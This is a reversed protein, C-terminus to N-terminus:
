GKRYRYGSWGGAARIPWPAGKYTAWAPMTGMIAELEAVTGGRSDPVDCVIEDYTHLVVPYGACEASLMAYRQIDRAVAQVVNECLKGSYTNIRVWGMAGQQPNTNYGEYSLSWQGGFSRTNPSLTPARYTLVRGSPLHCYLAAGDSQYSVGSETGDLRRVKHLTNPALVAAIAAGELGFFEARRAGWERREQGGWFEVIAPSAARWALISEKIEAEGMFADAGFRQWAGIWGGFGSALEAVKGITQRIPHHEGDRAKRTWWGPSTVDDYGAHAMVEAFSIGTIKSASLEYAKGHTAFMDVRWQEGALCALVVGEISSFDSAILTHGPSAVFLGRLCGSVCLMADGYRQEIVPLPHQRIDALVAETAEPGWKAPAHGPAFPVGCSWCTDRSVDSYRGCASCAKLTPGAKPLNTPQPGEGTPRGTRAGHYNYLDHLRGEPTLQNIMAFVKKVSASGVAQRIQLARRAASAAEPISALLAEIADSDMAGPGDSVHVGFGGLWGKLRELQSAREVVGGTLTHLEANYQELCADVLAACAQLSEADIRVGRRNILQDLLWFDLEEGTLDPCRASAEAEAKIDRLNYQCLLDFDARAEEPRLRLSPNGKTPNRPTSLKSLLYKGAEDKPTTLGMVRGALELGGPYGSARAKGMACRTQGIELPPWGYRPMCVFTWIWWEFASNWSEVIGGKRVYDLLDHPPEADPLWLRPGAGDKLDYALSLVETSPHRAYVAAGVVSLGKATGRPGRWKQAEWDFVCGAESFTEFDMDPLVTAVGLGAPLPMGAPLSAPHQTM